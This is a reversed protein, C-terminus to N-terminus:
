VAVSEPIVNQLIQGDGPSLVPEDDDDEDDQDEDDEDGTPEATTLEITQATILADLFGIAKGAIGECGDRKEPIQALIATCLSGTQLAMQHRSQRQQELLREAENLEQLSQQQSRKAREEKELHRKRERIQQRSLM